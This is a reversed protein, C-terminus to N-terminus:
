RIVLPIHRGCLRAAIARLVFRPRGRPSLPTGTFGARRIEDSFPVVGILQAGVTDICEDLDRVGCNELTPPVQNLLLRIEACGGATLADCVIKGDRTAIPDPTLVLLARQAVARAAEFPAGLGAATDLLIVDFVPGAKEVFARLAAPRIRGGSYPASILYLDRYVPSEVIAKGAECRGTLVDEIDYVTKGSVGAIYDVSRLGCDLEVLLVRKGRAALEAGLLVALTSKGTGGKGSAIMTVNASM